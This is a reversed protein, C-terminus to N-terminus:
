PTYEYKLRGWTPDSDTRFDEWRYIRWLGDGERRIYLTFSGSFFSTTNERALVLDYDRYLVANDSQIIDEKEEIIQLDLDMNKDILSRMETEIDKGWYAPLNYDQVDQSDFYFEFDSSLIAGYRDINENYDYAYKLNDLTQFPTIPYHNWNIKGVPEEPERTEFLGCSSLFLVTLIVSGSLLKMRCKTLSRKM